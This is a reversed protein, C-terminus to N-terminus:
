RPIKAGASVYHGRFEIGLGCYGDTDAQKVDATGPAFAIILQRKEVRAQPASYSFDDTEIPEFTASLLRDQLRGAAQVVCDAPAAAGSSPPGGGDLRVRVVGDKASVQLIVTAAGVLRYDGIIESVAPAQSWGYGPDGVLLVLALLATHSLAPM